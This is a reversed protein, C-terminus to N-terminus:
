AWRGVYLPRWSGRDAWSQWGRGDYRHVGVDAPRVPHRGFDPVILAVHGPLAVMPNRRDTESQDVWTTPHTHVDGAVRLGQVRCLRWLGSYAAPGLVIGRVLASPDLDDYFAVELIRRGDGDRRTLLFAGSERTGSGRRDLEGILDHWQEPQFRLLAGRGFLWRFVRM